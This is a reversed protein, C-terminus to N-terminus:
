YVIEGLVRNTVTSSAQNMRKEAQTRLKGASEQNVKLQEDHSRNAEQVTSTYLKSAEEEAYAKSNAILKEAEQQALVTIKKARDKAENRIQEAQSEIKRLEEWIKEMM